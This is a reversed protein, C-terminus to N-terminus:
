IGQRRKREARLTTGIFGVDKIGRELESAYLLLTTAFTCAAIAHVTAHRNVCALDILTAFLGAAGVAPSACIADLPSFAQVALLVLGANAVAFTVVVIALGRKLPLVLDVLKIAVFWAAAYVLLLVWGEPSGTVAAEPRSSWFLVAPMMALIAGNVKVFEPFKCRFALRNARELIDILACAILGAAFGGVHAVWDIRQPSMALVVNLGINVLFFQASLDIKGLVWLCFLAGLIGSIAGSAGVSLYPGSSHLDSLVAGAIMACFYIVLFYFSGIRSELPGGWLVLCLMNTTLHLPNAHLFGYAILRWYEHRAIAESYMAGNDFLIETSIDASSSSRLCLGFIIVNATMLLFTAAHPREVLWNRNRYTAM